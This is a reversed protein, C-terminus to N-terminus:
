SARPSTPARAGTVAARAERPEAGSRITAALDSLTEHFYRVAADLDPFSPARYTGGTFFTRAYGLVSDMHRILEQPTRVQPAARFSAFEPPADRLAKQTRYAVSALFHVLLARREASV